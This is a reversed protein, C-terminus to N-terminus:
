RAIDRLDPNQNQHIGTTLRKRHNLYLPPKAGSATLWESASAADSSAQPVLTLSMM